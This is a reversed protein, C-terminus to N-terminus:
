KKRISAVDISWFYAVGNAVCPPRLDGSVSYGYEGEKSTPLGAIKTTDCLLLERYVVKSYDVDKLLISRRETIRATMDKVVTSAKGKCGCNDNSIFPEETTEKSCSVWTFLSAIVIIRKM